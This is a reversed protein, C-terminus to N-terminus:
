QFKFYKNKLASTEPSPVIMEWSITLSERALPLIYQLLTNAYIDKPHTKWKWKIHQNYIISSILFSRFQPFHSISFDHLRVLKNLSKWNRKESFLKLQMSPALFEHFSLLKNHLEYGVLFNALFCGGVFFCFGM